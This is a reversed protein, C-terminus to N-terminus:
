RQHGAHGKHRAHAGPMPPEEQPGGAFWERPASSDLFLALIRRLEPQKQRVQDTILVDQALHHLMHLNDFIYGAEPLLRHFGPSSKHTLPFYHPPNDLMQRFRALAADVAAARKERPELMAEYQIGQLWHYAMMIGMCEPYAHHFQHSYPFAGMLEVKLPAATIALPDRRYYAIAEDLAAKKGTVRDDALIDLLQDHLVHTWEMARSVRWALRPWAPALIEESPPLPPPDLAQRRIRAALRRDHDAARERAEAPKDILLQVPLTHVFPAAGLQRTLAPYLRRAAFNYPRRLRYVEGRREGRAPLAFLLLALLRRRNMEFGMM